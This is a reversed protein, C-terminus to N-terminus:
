SPRKVPKSSAGGRLMAPNRKEMFAAHAEEFGTLLGEYDFRPDWRVRDRDEDFPTENPPLNLKQVREQCQVYLDEESFDAM